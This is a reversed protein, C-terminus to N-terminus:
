FQQTISYLPSIIALALAGVALGIIIFLIPELITSLNKTIDDLEEEHLSACYALSNSLTGSEEGVNIIQCDTLPFLNTKTKLFEYLTGGGKIKESASLMFSKYYDNHLTTSCIKISEDITVGSDLLISFSRYLMSLNFHRSINKAIPILLILRHTYPKIKKLKFVIGLAIILLTLLVIALIGHYQFFDSIAILIRTALPLEVKFNKFLKTMKPLVFIAIGISLTITGGFIIMPYIMAGVMKGKLKYSKALQGSLYEINQELSGSEEGIKIINIYIDSFVKPYKRLTESLKVGSKVQRNIESLIEKLKGKAQNELVELAEVLTSGAKIMVALNKTFLLLAKQSVGGIYFNKVKMKEKEPM